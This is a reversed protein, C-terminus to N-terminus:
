AEMREYVKYYAFPIKKYNKEVFENLELVNIFNEDSALIFKPKYEIVEDHITKSIEDIGVGFLKWKFSPIGGFLPYPNMNRRRSLFLIEPTGLSLIKENENTKNEVMKALMLQDEIAVQEGTRHFLFLLLSGLVGYKNQVYSILEYTSNKGFKDRDQIVPNEPYVPQVAPFFGYICVISILVITVIKNSITKTVRTYIKKLVIAALISIPPLIVAFDSGDDFDIFFCLSLLFFSLVFSTLYKNKHFIDLSRKKMLKYFSYLLGISGLLLFFFESCYYGLVNLLLWLSPPKAYNYKLPGVVTFKILDTIPVFIALLILPISFGLLVRVYKKIKERCDNGELFPFILPAVLFIGFPPWFLFGLIDAMGSLFYFGKFLLFITLLSFLLGLAKSDGLLSLEIFFTFSMLILVSLVSILKDNFIKLNIKYFLLGLLSILILMFIRISLYQPLFDFFNMALAYFAPVVPSNFFVTSYVPQGRVLEQGIYDYFGLDKLIPFSNIGYSSAIVPITLLLTIEIWHEKLIKM